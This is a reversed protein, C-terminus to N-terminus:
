GSDAEQIYDIPNMNMTPGIIPILPKICFLCLKLTNAISSRRKQMIWAM